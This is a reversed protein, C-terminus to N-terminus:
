VDVAWEGCVDESNRLSEPRQTVAPTATVNSPLLRNRTRPPRPWALLASHSRRHNYWDIYELTAFEVDQLARWLGGPPLDPTHRHALAVSRSQRRARRRPQTRPAPRPPRHRAALPRRRRTSRRDRRHDPHQPTRRRHVHRQPGPLRASDSDLVGRFRHAAVDATDGRRPQRRAPARSRVGRPAPQHLPRASRPPDAINNAAANGARLKVWLPEGDGISCLMPGFGCGRKYRPAADHKNESHVEVLTSDIDFVLPRVSDPVRGPACARRLTTCGSWASRTSAWFRGTRLRIRRSAGSCRRSAATDWRRVCRRALVWRTRPVARFSCGPMRRSADGAAKSVWRQSM